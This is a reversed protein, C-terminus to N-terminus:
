TLNKGQKRAAIKDWLADRQSEPLKLYKVITEAESLDDTHKVVLANEIRIHYSCGPCKRTSQTSQVYQPLGCRGCQIILYKKM